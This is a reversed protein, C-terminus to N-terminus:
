PKFDLYKNRYNLFVSGGGLIPCEAVNMKQRHVETAIEGWRFLVESCRLVVM